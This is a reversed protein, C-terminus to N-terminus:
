GKGHFQRTFGKWHDTYVRQLEGATLAAETVQFPQRSEIMFVLSDEIKRPPLEASRALEFSEVDPGHASWNNHLSAGGPALGSAKGEHKGAIVGLYEAV